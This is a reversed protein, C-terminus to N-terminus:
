KAVAAVTERDRAAINERTLEAIDDITMAASEVNSWRRPQASSLPKM